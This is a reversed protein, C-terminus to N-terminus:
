EYDDSGKLLVGIIYGFLLGLIFQWGFFILLLFFVVIITWVLVLLSSKSYKM